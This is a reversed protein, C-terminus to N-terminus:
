KKKWYMTRFPHEDTLNGQLGGLRNGDYFMVVVYNFFPVIPAEDRVLITEAERFLAFRKQQDAEKGASRIIGDYKKNSWGCNNNGGGTVFM